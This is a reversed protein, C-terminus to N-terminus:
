SKVYQIDSFIDDIRKSITDNSLPGKIEKETNEGLIRKVIENCAPLMVKEAITHPQM